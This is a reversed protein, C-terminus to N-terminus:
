ESVKSRMAKVESRVGKETLRRRNSARTPKTPRRVAIPRAAADVISQLRSIAIAKNRDQTRETQAKIVIVGQSNLRRDAMALLRQKVEEPLTSKAVDFRLHVASSVKAVNQGGPGQSRIASFDVENINVIPRM